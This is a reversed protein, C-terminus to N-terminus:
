EILTHQLVLVIKCFVTGNCFAIIKSGFNDIIEAVFIAFLVQKKKSKQMYYSHRVFFCQKKRPSPAQMAETNKQCYAEM